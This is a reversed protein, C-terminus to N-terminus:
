LEVGDLNDLFANLDVNGNIINIIDSETLDEVIDAIDIISAGVTDEFDAALQPNNVLAPIVPKHNLYLEHLELILNIINKNEDEGEELFEKCYSKISSSVEVTDGDYIGNYSKDVNFQYYIFYVLNDLAKGMITKFKSIENRNLVIFEELCKSMINCLVKTYDITLKLRRQVAFHATALGKRFINLTDIDYLSLFDEFEDCQQDILETSPLNSDELINIYEKMDLLNLLLVYSERFLPDLLSEMSSVDALGRVESKIAVVKKDGFLNMEQLKM